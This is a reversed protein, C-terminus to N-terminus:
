HLAEKLRPEALAHQLGADLVAGDGVILRVVVLGAGVQHPRGAPGDVTSQVAAAAHGPAHMGHLVLQAGEVVDGVALAQRDQRGVPHFESQPVLGHVLKELVAHVHPVQGRVPVLPGHRLLGDGAGAAEELFLQM